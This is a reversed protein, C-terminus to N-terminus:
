CVANLADVLFLFDEREKRELFRGESSGLKEGLKGGKSKGKQGGKPIKGENFRTM